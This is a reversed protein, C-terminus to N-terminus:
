RHDSQKEKLKTVQSQLKDILKDIASYMDNEEAKAHLETHDLHITAEAIHSLHEIHLILNITTINNYIHKLRQLKDESYTKLAPTIELNRGTLQIQM